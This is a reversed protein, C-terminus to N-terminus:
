IACYGTRLVMWLAKCKVERVSRNEWVGDWSKQFADLWISCNICTPQEYLYGRSDIALYENVSHVPAIYLSFVQWFTKVSCWLIRVRIQSDLARGRLWQARKPRPIETCTEQVFLIDVQSALVLRSAKSSVSAASIQWWASDISRVCKYM